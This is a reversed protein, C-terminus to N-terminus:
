NFVARHFFLQNGTDYYLLFGKGEAGKMSTFQLWLHNGSTAIELPRKTGCYVGLVNADKNDGDRAVLKAKDCSGDEELKFSNFHLSIKEGPDVSVRWTCHTKGKYHGPWEPSEITGTPSYFFGGCAVAFFPVLFSVFAIPDFRTIESDDIRSM